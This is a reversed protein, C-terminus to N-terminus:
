KKRVYLMVGSLAVLLLGLTSTILITNRVAKGREKGWWMEAYHHMHLNSFSFREAKDAPTTVAAVAGTSTEIFCSVNNDFSVLVVPLQKNMMSYAHNFATIEKAQRVCHEEKGSLRCALYCAYQVDGNPLLEGTQMNLYKKGKKKEQDVYTVQWYNKGHVEVASVNSLIENDNLWQCVAALSLNLEDETFQTIFTSATTHKKDPVKKFAHWAGSFAYLLTTLLFVNGAIRHWSKTATRKRTGGNKKHTINYVYFGFVSTAFCLLSFTGLLVSKTKGMGDLFSWSHAIGFFASYWAKRRDVAYVLRDAKTEVYLRIDDSRQFAVKYVPLIKQSGKYEQDFRSLYKVEAVPSGSSYIIAAAQLFNDEKADHCAERAPVVNSTGNLFQQALQEAYLADGNKLIAGSATHIYVLPAQQALQLQYYYATDLKVIRFNRISDIQHHLLAQSLSIGIKSTDITVPALVQSKVNPKFANMVPHLFGSFTWLLLPVAVILSTTRHWRYINKRLYTKWSM